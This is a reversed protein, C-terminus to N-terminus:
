PQLRLIAGAYVDHDDYFNGSLYLRWYLHYHDFRGPRPNFVRQLKEGGASYVIEITGQGVLRIEDPKNMFNYHIGNTGTAGNNLSQINKNLDIVLNGNADYVYDPTSGNSGDKFDGFQGNLTPQNM